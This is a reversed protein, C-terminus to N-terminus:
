EPTSECGCCAEDISTADYCLDILTPKRYDYIIYLYDGSTGSPMTFTGKYLNPAGTSNLTATTAVGVLTNMAAATNPYNTSSRHYMFKNPPNEFVATDNGFKNFVLEVSSGDLPLSGQGQTGSVVEYRSVIPNGVGSAFQVENSTLPSFFGNLNWRHENHILLNAENPATLCVEVLTLDATEPCEVTITLNSVSGTASVELTFTTNNVVSKSFTLSGSGTNGTSSTTNGAYTAEVDFTGSVVPTNWSITVDGVDTGLEFVAEYPDGNQVSITQSVGCNIPPVEIPVEEQNSTLVYENMYPDFGGLKQTTFQNIFLDRFWTRMGEQSIVKLADNSYSAGSLQIAVGRKADTFYKDPGWVAFSEPNHSIGFEEIRAIQQGLVEPVATLLNGASADSLLNKGQLVYSIKDEQLTLIDTERAFLKQIPGFSEELNKFNLLGRNFENLRNVNSEDSFVGSYTIDSFRRVEEYEQAQTSTVRNGLNFDKAIVSDRVKYSEAGNGFTYCNYFGTSALGDQTTTQNQIDGLHYGEDLTTYSITINTPDDPPTQPSTSASNCVGIVTASSGDQVVVQAPNGNLDTYNFAIPNTEAADVSLDIQCKDTGQVIGFSKSDEYWIDPSADLPESEFIITTDARFVTICMKAKSRRKKNRGCARTGKSYYTLKNTAADREFWHYIVGMNDQVPGPNLGLYETEFPTTNPDGPNGMVSYGSDFVAQINDGEFWDYFNDYDESATMEKDVYYRRGECKNGAGKRIYEFDFIIRSGAPIDYDTYESGPINPDPENFNVPYGVVPYNDNGKRTRSKCGFDVIADEDTEVSFTNARLKMYVGPPVERDIDSELFDKTQAKKELVTAYTCSERPGDVDAKVILRQGDTIKQPNEGQLLFYTHSDNPNTFFINTYITEYTEKDPKIAFKYRTAWYPALQSPPIRVNISNITDSDACAFHETNYQSVLAPTSRLFEDMYIIGIEYGRNSHLSRGTGDKAYSFEPAVIRFYETVVITPTTVNDAYQIAPFQFTVNTSGIASGIAIPQEIATIGSQYKNLTDLNALFHNNYIDTFTTGDAATAMPQINSVTGIRELFEDSTAFDYVSNYSQTLQVTFDLFNDTGNDTAPANGGPVSTFSDHEFQFIFSISAGEVLDLGDLDFTAVSNTITQASQINYNGTSLTGDEETSDLGERVSETRFDFRVPNQNKDVLDYGEVYNGYMLRNGMITEAQALLPVSDYLRLIESEPLITFIKSNQFQYTVEQNDQYGQDAKTLKEIIKITPNGADKFLLDIGKVLPGGTNFTINAANYINSMGENLYSDATLRFTSPIFAPQSWQSTASYEEDDYKYRYAFCIFREEMFNEQGSTELLEIKPSEIPPKKIVLIDDYDFGDVNNVPDGYNRGINIKRPPNYNDTFFLLDEVMDVGTILYEDNFNLTTTGATTANQISIVHYTVITTETNYSVILDLVGNPASTFSPDHVFWYLTERAGDEYAGICKADNSLATGNYELSTLKTNGKSNEVVGIESGETSGMRINLADVYQGNPILREDVQKNMKGQVFNRQVNAM